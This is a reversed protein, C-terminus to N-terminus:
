SAARAPQPDLLRTRVDDARPHGVDALIALAQQWAPRALGPDGALRHADGLRMLCLAEGVRHGVEQYLTLASRYYAIAKRHHGLRLHALGLSDAVNAEDYRDGLRRCLTYAQECHVIAQQYDGLTILRWGVNNLARAEGVRHEGARFLELARRDHRLADRPKNLSEYVFSTMIHTHAQGVPDAIREFVEVARDLHDLAEGQRGLRTLGRALIRRAYAVQPPGGDRQAAEVAATFCAVQDHWRGTRNFVDTLSWALGWVPRDYGARAAVHVAAVVAPYEAAFWGGPSRPVEPTVGPLAPPLNTPDRHPELAIAATHATRLYHDLIRQRAQDGEAVSVLETAYARLLDHLAYRGAGTEILLCAGVLEALAAHVEGTRGGALSVAAAAGLEPGPYASLLRFLRAGAATLVRYSCSLVARVDVAPDRDVFPALGGASELEAAVAALPINPRVAARAATVALALPLGVCRAIIADVAAPEPNIRQPGLRDLLLDRAEVPDLLNLPIPHAQDTAVLGALQNRSTVLVLCGPAGPLLPRVQDATRANDLLILMRRGTLESRYLGAQSDVGPPIRAAPVELAELLSRIAEAAGVPTGAPDFGRLNLYLQGDPFRDRVRHAWHVAVSTKGVGATGTVMVVSASTDVAALSRDLEALVGARGTFVKPAAPLQRPAAAPRPVPVAPQANEPQLGPDAALVDRQLRQLPPGPETGVEDVLVDRIRRYEALAEAQRGCRYLALMLQGAIREDMPHEAALGALGPLLEAHGGRDLVLANRDLQAALREAVLGARVGALWPTDLTAFAEGRWLALAEAFLVDDGSARAQAVLHRFRHLDVAMPDATLRYGAPGRTVTVEAVGGLAQRLRSLYGSLSNRARRPSREGWVRDLLEDASVTRNADVLLAALVCRQRAHGLDVVQGDVEAEVPGLVRFLM